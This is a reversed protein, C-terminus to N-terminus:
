RLTRELFDVTLPWSRETAAPDSFQPALFNEFAHGAGDHVHFEVGDRGGLASRIADVEEAPIYPDNGGFHFITPCSLGDAEALRGAIGSGYYSVCADVDNHCALAYALHGGLCYGMVAVKGNSISRLHDLAAALDSAKTADDVETSWRGMLGFAENLGAEDHELAVGPQVRWFVDPCSVVYGLEALDRAKALLFDGVGFIEQLLLIGPGTGTDPEVITVTFEGDSVAVLETRTKTM